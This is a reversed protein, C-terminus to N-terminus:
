DKFKILNIYLYSLLSTEYFRRHFSTSDKLLKRIAPSCRTEGPEPSYSSHIVVMYLDVDISFHVIM